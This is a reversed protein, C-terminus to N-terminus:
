PAMREACGLYRSIAPAIDSLDRIEDAVEAAGDGWLLTPVPNVTHTRVSLDELNGHDSTLIVLNRSFDVRCLLADLFADLNGLVEVANAMDQAHGALDTLFYEYM